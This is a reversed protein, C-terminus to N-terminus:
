MEFDNDNQKDKGFGFHSGRATKAQESRLRDREAQQRSEQEKKFSDLARQKGEEMEKKLAFQARFADMGSRVDEKAVTDRETRAAALDGSVDILSNVEHVAREKEGESARLQLLASVAEPEMKKIRQPGFHKEPERDIGQEKLSRHDVVIQHGNKQLHGNQLTAWRERLSILEDRRQTFSKATNSKQCGGREPHAANYRKFYQEPDREVGDNIRESYMIHAHPQEGKEMAAKPTHIAWQYAHSDGFEKKVFEQVLEKRQEANLERPLAVEIEKYSSGNKREMEDAAQWFHQPNHEAWAPMNGCGKNELDEYRSSGSYKGERSIYSSHSAGKGKAGVKVSLHYSAM